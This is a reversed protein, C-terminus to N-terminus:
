FAASPLQRYDINGNNDAWGLEVLAEYSDKWRPDNKAGCLEIDDVTLNVGAMYEHDYKYVRVSMRGVAYIKQGKTLFPTFNNRGRNWICSVWMTRECQSGDNATYKETHAIRFTTVDKGNLNKVEADAGLNGIIQLKLM